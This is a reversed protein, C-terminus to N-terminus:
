ELRYRRLRAYLTGRSLGLRAAAETKNGGCEALVEAIVDREAQELLGLKQQPPRPPVALGRSLGRRIILVVGDDLRGPVVPYIRAHLEESLAVEKAAAGSEQLIAWLEARDLGMEAASDAVIMTNRDVTVIAGAAATACMSLHADLMRRQRATAAEALATEVGSVLARVAVLLLHNADDARCAVNVMGLVRRTIPDLVPAAACAWSHWPQKFHEAGVVLAVRNSLAATGIGNTGALQESVRSGRGFDVHDLCRAVARESDWRWTVTGESDSLALSTSNGVLLEAMGQLVRSGIRLFPSEDDVESHTLELRDPDVGSRRSRRWSDLIEPRASAEAGSQFREWATLTASSGM